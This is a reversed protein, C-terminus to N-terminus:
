IWPAFIEQCGHNKLHSRMSERSLKLENILAINVCRYVNELLKTM